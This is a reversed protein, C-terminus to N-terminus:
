GSLDGLTLLIRSTSFLYACVMWYHWIKCIKDFYSVCGLYPWTSDFSTMTVGRLANHTFRMLYYLRLPLSLVFIFKMHRVMISGAVLQNSVVFSGVTVFFQSDGILALTVFLCCVYESKSLRKGTFTKKGWRLWFLFSSFYFLWYGLTFSRTWFNNAVFLLMIDVIM